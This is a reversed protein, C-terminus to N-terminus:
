TAYMLVAGEATAVALRQDDPSWALQTIPAAHKALALSGPGKSPQWLAVLGDEGGSALLAGQHQFALCSIYQTHGELQVPTSGAPGKGAFDWVCCAEGGGTALWRGTADWALERVKTPYGSMQMDEGTELVWFHVTSDQGGAAIYKADPSWALALMSGPWAFERPPAAQPKANSCDWLFLKGYGASALIPESPHWQIDAITSPHEPFERIMTGDLHWLRLKKGAASALIGEGGVGRGSPSPLARCWAVREVWAAGAPMDNDDLEAGVFPEWLRVKGDQGASALRNGDTSFDVCSTGFGHGPLNHCLEGTKADFLAIPGDASAAAIYGLRPSWALSVVHGDISAEWLKSLKTRGWAFPNLRPM